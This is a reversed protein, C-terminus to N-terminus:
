NKSFTLCGFDYKIRLFFDVFNTAHM